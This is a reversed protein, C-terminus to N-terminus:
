PGVNKHPKLINGLQSGHKLLSYLESSLAGSKLKPPRSLLGLSQSNHEM